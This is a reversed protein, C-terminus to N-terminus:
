GRISNVIKITQWLCSSSLRVMRLSEPSATSSKKNYKFVLSGVVIDSTSNWQIITFSAMRSSRLIEMM